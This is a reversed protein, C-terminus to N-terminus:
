SLMSNLKNKLLLLALVQAAHRPDLNGTPEDALVLAPRHARTEDPASDARGDGMPVLLERGVAALGPTGGRQAAVQAAIGEAFPVGVEGGRLGAGILQLRAGGVHGAVGM